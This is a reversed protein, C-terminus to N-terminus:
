LTGVEHDDKIGLFKGSTAAAGCGLAFFAIAFLILLFVVGGIIIGAIPGASLGSNNNDGGSGSSPAKSPVVSPTTSPVVTPAKSPPVPALKACFFASADGPRHFVISRWSSSISDAGYYNRVIPPQPDNLFSGSFYL